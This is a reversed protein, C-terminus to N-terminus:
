TKIRDSLQTIQRECDDLKHTLTNTLAELDHKDIKNRQLEDIKKELDLFRQKLEDFKERLKEDFYYTLESFEEKM